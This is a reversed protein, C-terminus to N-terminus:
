EDDSLGFIEDHFYELVKKVVYKRTKQSQYVDLKIKVVTIHNM